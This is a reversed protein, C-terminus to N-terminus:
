GIRFDPLDFLGRVTERIKAHLAEERDRGHAEDERAGRAAAVDLAAMEEPALSASLADLLESEITKLRAGANAGPAVALDRVKRAADELAIAMAEDGIDRGARTLAAALAQLTKELDHTDMTTKVGPGVLQARAAEAAVARRCQALSRIEDGLRRRFAAEVGRAVVGLPIGEREWASIIELDVSSLAVGRGRRAIFHAAIAAVYDAGTSEMM